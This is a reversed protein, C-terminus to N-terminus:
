SFSNKVALTRWCDPYTKFYSDMLNITKENPKCANNEISEIIANWRFNKIQSPLIRNDIKFKKDKLIKSIDKNSYKYSVSLEKIIAEKEKCNNVKNM